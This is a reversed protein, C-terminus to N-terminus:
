TAEIYDTATAETADRVTTTLSEVVDAVALLAHVIAAAQADVVDALVAASDYHPRDARTM